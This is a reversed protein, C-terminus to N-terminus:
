SCIRKVPFTLKAGTEPAAGYNFKPCMTFDYEYGYERPNYNKYARFICDLAIGFDKEDEFPESRFVLMTGAEIEIVEFGKPIEKNYDCPM